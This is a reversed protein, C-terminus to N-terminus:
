ALRTGAQRPVTVYDLLDGGRYFDVLWRALLERASEEPADRLDESDVAILRQTGHGSPALHAVPLGERAHSAHYSVAGQFGALHIALDLTVAGAVSYLEGLFALIGWLEAAIRGEHACLYDPVEGGGAVGTPV